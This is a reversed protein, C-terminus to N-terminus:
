NGKGGGGAPTDVVRLTQEDNEFIVTVANTKNRKAFEHIEELQTDLRWVTTLNEEKYGSGQPTMVPKISKCGVIALVQESERPM